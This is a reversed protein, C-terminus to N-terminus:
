EGRGVGEDNMSSVATGDAVQAPSSAGKYDSPDELPVEVNSQEWIQGDSRSNGATTELIEVSLNSSSTNAKHLFCGRVLAPNVGGRRRM